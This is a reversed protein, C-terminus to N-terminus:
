ANSVLPSLEGVNVIKLRHLARTCGVYLLKAHLPDFPYNEASVDVLLVADFELGKTLYVPIISIGGRYEVEESGVYTVDSLVQKLGEYLHVADADTRTVVAITNMNDAQYDAIVKAVDQLQASASTQEVTVETGSRFVPKAPTFGEFNLIIRNAFEIIESTSRYSIDLQYYSSVDEPFLSRFEDWSGIGQYGHISQSLDGLITFSMSPTRDRLVAVQYPSFDQAEDIVVHDFLQAGGLEYFISEIHILPSLDEFLVEKKKPFKAVRLEPPLSTFDDESLYPPRTTGLIERYFSLPTHSPFSKQFSKLKTLAKKKWENKPDQYRINQHQIEVWRKMRAFLRNRRDMLSMHRYETYFWERIEQNSLVAGKWAVFDGDPIFATEFAALAKSIYRYFDMSGKFQSVKLWTDNQGKATIDFWRSMHDTSKIQIGDELTQEAWRAFTTQRIGGVGLEPLVSSIYDLFMANPAFITMKGTEIKDQYQYLLYALRHLAVTTKGSGAVGQIILATNKPARIIQDQEAQITSVIDRLRNDKNEGLRYLLFEDTVGLNEGGRVYSDVVRELVQKRIALNRKLHIIGEIPGDPSVYEASDGQGTFSYFMSSVPARWDVVLLDGSSEQTVGVKGIYLPMPTTKGSEQFDLRGFYPEDHAIKLNMRRTERAADLAQEILDDGHYRPIAELKQIMEDIESVVDRLRDNEQIFSSQVDTEM